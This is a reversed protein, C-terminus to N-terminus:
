PELSSRWNWLSPSRSSCYTLRRAAQAWRCKQVDDACRTAQPIGRLWSLPAYHLTRGASLKRGVVCGLRCTQGSEFSGDGAYGIMAEHFGYM